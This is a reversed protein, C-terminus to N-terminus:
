EGYVLKMLEEMSTVGEAVLRAGSERLTTMHQTGIAYERIQEPSIGKAIMRRLPKDVFLIEHIAIRGSYGTYGCEGCGGAAKIKTLKRGLYTRVTEDAEVERACCPCLKRMLRQAVVGVLSDAALYPAIGMDELRTIASISDRTHLTSLVLHGTIAARVSIMATEYDRTEGVMIIDPDQRLLARLGTEFTLGSQRNIQCQNVHPLNKEVPDEITSINVPRAALAELIMYLTTTKGSSTPGTFYILGNPANLIRQMKEYNEPRMGFTDPYDIRREGGLIRLVTKEGFVTPMVSVRINVQQGDIDMRFHGDQPLRREAIDMDGLVKIRATLPGHIRKQLTVFEIIRGDIRMRVALRDEFPEIHIDSANNHYARQLLSDLLSTVPTNDDEQGFIGMSERAKDWMRGDAKQGSNKGSHGNIAKLTRIGENVRDVARQAQLEAYYYGIAKSLPRAECLMLKIAMGTTQRVDELAYFNLPDSTLVTLTDGNRSVALIKYKVALEAPILEVASRDVTIKALETKQLFLREALAELMQTETIYGLRIMAEGLRIGQRQQQYHLARALQEENIYGYEKLIDGIRLNRFRFIDNGDDTLEMNGERQRKQGIYGIHEDSEPIRYM